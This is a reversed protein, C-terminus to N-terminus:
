AQGESWPDADAYTALRILDSATIPIGSIARRVFLWLSALLIMHREIKTLEQPYDNAKSINEM